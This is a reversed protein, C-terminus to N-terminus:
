FIKQQLLFFDLSVSYIFALPDNKQVPLIKM